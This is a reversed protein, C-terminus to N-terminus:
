QTITIKAAPTSATGVTVVVPQDGPPTGPPVTFNIQTVGVLGSPIGIFAITAVTGGVTVTVPLKPKPLSTLRTGPAPTTGDALSPSVQGDGTIFMTVTQGATAARSPNIGGDPFTFIGPGAQSVNITYNVNQYPNGLTLTARGPQTEYPIQINVQNPSVYYLPAPVNNILAEFGALYQPLPIAAASQAFNGMATGYVSLLMGPAYVQQGTAANSAGAITLLTQPGSFAVSLQRSWQMGGADVGTFSFVKTSPVSLNSFGFAASISGRPAIASGGFLAAIQSTYSVGDTTDTVGTLTTGIGAEETLTLQFHWPNGGANPAQQFVPTQDVSPVVSSNLAPSGTWGHVLNYADVSGWGTVPDYAPGASLGVSGNTCNPTGAACPVANNGVTVDHFIGTSNQALRYIAPNVNGLGPQPQAGTSVLYQNLLVFIGAMTPTAASTGGVYGPSGASYFYYGDHDASASLSLDPVHRIGDSPVGSGIQWVPQPFYVSSGGGTAVPGGDFFSDNWAMEPIYQLASAGNATNTPAWYGSGAQENFETGGMSTVEPISAPANVAFGNQAVPTGQDDCAAAGADGSAAFWTIGEANAQQVVSRFSPLDVLDAQECGGYSMSLVPALNQDVAYLASQWVDDSYVFVITANRAVAGAWEIDLDAEDQDGTIGPDPRGHALVQNVNATGLNFKTRFAQIDSLNVASQGVVVISQGTGDVGASYLPAVDYITAFDDPALNHSSGTTMQPSAPKKLQPKPHFDNLGLVGAVVDALAAPIQPDTANSFHMRGNVSYRHIQTHFANQAQQATATFSIFTRSRAVNAVQLGQSQAWATIQAVDAASAGFRGAYQEPTLWRHYSSSSPDQQQRLLQALDSQQAASPKLLLTIGPLAFSAPVAGRDNQANASPHVRGALRVTLSNDVQTTIRNQQAYLATAAQACICAFLALGRNNIM